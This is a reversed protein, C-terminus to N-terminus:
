SALVVREHAVDGREIAYGAKEWADIGGALPRVHSFGRAKLLKAIRAASAENPCACYLIVERHSELDPIRVEITSEDISIAGPIRGDARQSELSRVDLIMPAEGSDLLAALEPVTIRAMRLENFFRRRDWWKAAIFVALALALLGVGIEGLHALTNLLTEVTSSFISGVLVAVGAWLAAGIADFLLFVLYPTRVAGSLATAIAAFGPIFKAVMLSPAGFRSYIRETQRVCTDPSLSIRCMTRLVPRGITRGAIYWGSDAILAAVVAVGVLAEISYHAVGLLAGTLVLTPVAPLPLGAQAALVNVFVFALGYETILAILHHMCEGRDIWIAVIAGYVLGRRAEHRL